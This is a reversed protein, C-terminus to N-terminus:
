DKAIVFRGEFLRFYSYCIILIFEPFMITLYRPAASGLSVGAIYVIVFFLIFYIYFNLKKIKKIILLLSLVLFVFFVSNPILYFFTTPKQITYSYPYSFFMRGLNCSINVLYKVPHAKINEFAKQKLVDDMDVENLNKIKNWFEGHNKELNDNQSLTSISFWDGFEGKYPSTMWYLASGGSSGWYLLKGTLSYTYILYPITFLFGLLFVIFTKKIFDKRIIILLIFYFILCILIVYGFVIKTLALYALIFGLLFINLKKNNGKYFIEVAYYIILCILLMALSETLLFPMDYLMVPNLALLYVPIIIKREPFLSKLTVFFLVMALFMLVANLFKLFFVPLKIFVFPVLFLPYGPGNWLTVNDAPSYFGHTLNDAYWKYRVEDLVLTNDSVVIVIIIYIFLVPLLKLIAYKNIHERFM